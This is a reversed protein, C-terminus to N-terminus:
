TGNNGPDSLLPVGSRHRKSRKSINSAAEREQFIANTAADVEEAHSEDLEESIKFHNECYPQLTWLGDVPQIRILLNSYCCLPHMAITCKGYACQICAGTFGKRGAKACIICKLNYRAKDVHEIGVVPEALEDNGFGIEPIMQACTVHVWSKGDATPKLAGGPFSCVACQAM